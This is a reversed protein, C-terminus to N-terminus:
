KECTKHCELPVSNVSNVGTNEILEEFPDRRSKISVVSWTQQDFFVHNKVHDTYHPSSLLSGDGLNVM